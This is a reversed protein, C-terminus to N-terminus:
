LRACIPCWQGQKIKNPVAKWIHGMSCKWELKTQPNVYKNSICYGGRKKAIKRMGDLTGKVNGACIPCWYGKRISAPVAEWTHGQKCQWTLKTHANIYRQSLCKGEHKNALKQMDFITKGLGYCYPCWSGSKVRSPTSKWVHKNKCQWELPTNATIYDVSLCKGEHSRAIDQMSQITLKRPLMRFKAACKMCWRGKFISYPIAEWTHGEKCQWKLKADIGLYTDSLCKGGHQEAIKKLELLRVQTKPSYTDSLDIQIQDFDHPLVIAQKQSENKIFNKLEDIPLFRPVEPIEILTVGHKKCLKRKIRDLAKGHQFEQESRMFFNIKKHHQEGQHEFAIKLPACYGDLELSTGDKCKLWLPRTKPFNKGFLQEFYARCIREGLGASCIPCWSGRIVSDPLAEWVHGESCQWQIKSSPKYIASLCKGGRETAILQMQEIKHRRKIGANKQACQPCWAGAAIRYIPAFWRHGQSCQWEHNMRAGLYKKSLFEGNREYALQKLEDITKGKGACKPCWSGRAVSDPIAYWIHNKECQWQLKARANTYSKSLCKGNRNKALIKMDEISLRTANCTREHGCTPCWLGFKVSSPRAWWIHRKACMWKLKTHTNIYKESM